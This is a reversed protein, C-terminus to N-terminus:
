QLPLLGGFVPMVNSSQGALTASQPRRGVARLAILSRRRRNDPLLTSLRGGSAARKAECPWMRRTYRPFWDNQWMLRQPRSQGVGGHSRVWRCCPPSADVRTMTGLTCCPLHAPFGARQGEKGDQLFPSSPGSVTLGSAVRCPIRIPSPESCAAPGIRPWPFDRSESVHESRTTSALRHAFRWAAKRASAITVHSHRGFWGGQSSRCAM